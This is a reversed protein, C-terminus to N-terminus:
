DAFIKGNGTKDLKLNLKLKKLPINHHGKRIKTYKQKKVNKWM